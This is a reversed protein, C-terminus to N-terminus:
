QIKLKECKVAKELLFDKQQSSDLKGLIGGYNEEFAM